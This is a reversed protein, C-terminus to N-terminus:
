DSDSDFDSELLSTNEQLHLQRVTLIRTLMSELAEDSLSSASFWTPSSPVCSSEPNLYFVNTHHRVGPPCKSVYFEYLRVPCRFPNQTNERIRLVKGREDEKKRKKAPVSDISTDEKHPYFSLYVVSTSGQDRCSRKFHGFSLRRHQEVTKYNFFKTFFYLLTNLLVGPSFAGLQKCDWLYEEEIRSYVSGSPLLTPTWGKLMDTMDQCFTVDAFINEMRDNEFLHQQIGLCLYFISDPSYKEGNPRRVEAIFRCLGYSLEATSCKLLDEKLRMSRLGYRPTELHLQTNRWRVWNMWASVGYKHQLKSLNTPGASTDKVAAACKSVRKKQAYGESVKRRPRRKVFDSIQQQQTEEKLLVTSEVPFDAELDMQPEEKPTSILTLTASKSPPKELETNQDLTQASSVSDEEWSLGSSLDELDLDDMINGAQDNSTIQKEKETDEAVMEAMMILDAELPDEPIKEKIEQITQVISEASDLTTPFFLPVPVPLPLGVSQPVYQSYLNMPVPVYVPVPVPLVIVKPTEDSQTEADRTNPKCSAAKNKRKQIRPPPASTRVTCKQKNVNKAPFSEDDSVEVTISPVSDDLDTSGLVDPQGNATDSLLRVNASIPTRAEKIGKHVASSALTAGRAPLSKREAKTVGQLSCFFMLCRLCCFHKMEGLWKVTETMKKAQRCMACKMEQRVMSTYKMLCQKGCFEEEKDKFVGTVLNKSAADCYFCDRCHKMGWDKVLNEEFLLKCKQGCFTRDVKNIRKVIKVAKVNKCYECRATIKNAKEFEKVCTNHCFIYMKKEFDLLQPKHIFSLLCQACPLRTVSNDPRSSSGNKVSSSSEAPAPKPAPPTLTPASKRTSANTEKCSKSKNLSTQHCVVCSFSCFNQVTGDCLAQHYQPEAIIKCNKCEVAADTLGLNGVDSSTATQVKKSAVACSASCFFEKVGELNLTNVMEAAPRTTSCMKCAVSQLRRKRYVTLCNQTCFKFANGEVLLTPCSGNTNNCYGGCNMCSSMTLNNSSRFKNFCSDSCLKLISGKYTVEHVHIVGTRQCVSCRFNFANICTQSCFEKVSGSADVPAFLVDKPDSIEKLCHHCTKKKVVIASTVCLCQLSCYIKPSGRRQFVTQGKLIIKKCGACSLGVPKFPNKRPISVTATALAGVSSAKRRLSLAAHINMEDNPTKNFDKKKIKRVPTKPAKRCEDDIPEDKIKVPPDSAPKRKLKLAPQTQTGSSNKGDKDDNDTLTEANQPEDVEIRGSYEGAYDDDDIPMENTFDEVKAIVLEESCEATDDANIETEENMEQDTEKDKGPGSAMDKLKDQHLRSDVDEQKMEKQLKLHYGQMLSDQPDSEKMGSETSDESDLSFGAASGLPSITETSQSASMWGYQQLVAGSSVTVYGFDRQDEPSAIYDMSVDCQEENQLETDAPRVAAAGSQGRQVILSPIATDKLVRKKTRIKLFYDDETFHESCVRHGKITAVPTHPDIDLALLWQNMLEANKTPIRHFMMTSNGPRRQKNNCSKVICYVGM